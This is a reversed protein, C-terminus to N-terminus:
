IKKSDDPIKFIPIRNLLENPIIKILLGNVLSGRGIVLYVIHEYPTLATLRIYSGGLHILM